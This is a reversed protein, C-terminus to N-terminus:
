EVEVAPRSKGYAASVLESVLAGGSEAVERGNKSNAISAMKETMGSGLQRLM